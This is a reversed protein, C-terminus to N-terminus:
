RGHATGMRRKAWRAGARRESRRRAQVPRDYAPHPPRALRDAIVAGRARRALRDAIVAGRAPLPGSGVGHSNPIRQSLLKDRQGIRLQRKCGPLLPVRRGHRLLLALLERGVRLTRRVGDAPPTRCLGLNTRVPRHVGSSLLFLCIVFVSRFSRPESRVQGRRNLYRVDTERGPSRVPPCRSSSTPWPENVCPHGSVQPGGAASRHRPDGRPVVTKYVMM